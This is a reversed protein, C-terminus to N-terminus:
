ERREVKLYSVDSDSSASGSGGVHKSVHHTVKLLSPKICGETDIKYSYRTPVCTIGGRRIFGITNVTPNKSAGLACYQQSPLYSGREPADAIFCVLDSAAIMPGPRGTEALRVFESWVRDDETGLLHGAFVFGFFLGLSVLVLKGLSAAM